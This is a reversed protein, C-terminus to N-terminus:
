TPAWRFRSRRAILGVQKAFSSNLDNCPFSDITFCVEPLHPELTEFERCYLLSFSLLMNSAHKGRAFGVFFCCLLGTM